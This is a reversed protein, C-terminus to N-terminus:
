SKTQEYSQREKDLEILDYYIEYLSLGSVEQVRMATELPMHALGKLIHNMKQVKSVELFGPSLDPCVIM